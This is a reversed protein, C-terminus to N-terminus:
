GTTPPSSPVSSSADPDATDDVPPATATTLDLPATAPPVLLNEPVSVNPPEGDTINNIDALSPPLLAGPDDLMSEPGFFLTFAEGDGTFRVDGFDSDIIEPEGEFDGSPWKLVRVVGTGDGCDDGTAYTTGDPLTFSDDGLEVGIEEAFIALKANKGAAAGTSPHIHIIGPTDEFHNHIGYKDGLTDPLAPGFTDCLYIGYASHWHDVGLVPPEAAKSVESQRVAVILVMGVIVIGAVAAPFGWKRDKKTKTAGGVRAARAVKKSSSAKGM